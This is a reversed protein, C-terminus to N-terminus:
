LHGHVCALLAFNLVEPFWILLIKKKVSVGCFPSQYAIDCGCRVPPSPQELDEYKTSAKRPRKGLVTTVDQHTVATTTSATTTVATTYSTPTATVSGTGTVTPPVNVKSITQTTVFSGGNTTPQVITGASGGNESPPLCQTGTDPSRRTPSTNTLGTTSVAETKIKPAKSAQLQAAIREIASMRPKADLSPVKSVHETRVQLSPVPTVSGSEITLSTATSGNNTNNAAPVTPPPNTTLPPNNEVLPSLRTISATTVQLSSVTKPPMSQVMLTTTRVSSSHVCPSVFSVCVGFTVYVVHMYTVYCLVILARARLPCVGVSILTM